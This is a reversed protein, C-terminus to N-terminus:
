LRMSAAARGSPRIPARGGSCPLGQGERDFPGAYPLDSRVGMQAVDTESDLLMGSLVSTGDHPFIAAVTDAPLHVFLRLDQVETAGPLPRRSRSPIVKVSSGM